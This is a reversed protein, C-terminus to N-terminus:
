NLGTDNQRLRLCNAPSLRSVVHYNAPRVLFRVPSQSPVDFTCGIAGRFRAKRMRAGSRMGQRVKLGIRPWWFPVREIFRPVAFGELWSM